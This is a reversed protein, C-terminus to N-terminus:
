HGSQRRPLAMQSAPSRGATRSIGSHMPLVISPLPSGTPGRFARGFATGSSFGWRLAITQVSEARLEPRTLDAFARELRGQRIRAAVGLPQDDFLDYLTRLSINHHDAIAQPTLEPDSLNSDIFRMVRHRMEQARAEPPAEGPSGLHQALCATALDLAVSGM